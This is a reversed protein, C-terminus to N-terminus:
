SGAEVHAVPREACRTTLLQALPPIVDHWDAVIGIDAGDFVEAAPDHNVALITGSGRVGVMHNFRGSIGVAVYLKPSISHGTIGVQRSRPLWGRDTVRRTAALPAGGLARQLPELLALEDPAVGTGVGIVVPAQLLDLPDDIREQSITVVGSRAAAKVTRATDIETVDRPSRVPLAGRRVTVMQVPSRTDIPVVLQGGLAPKFARLRRDPTIELSIADGTLGWGTAASVWGALARGSRTSEFLVAWPAAQHLLGALTWPADELGGGSLSIIEDAGLGALGRPAPGRVVAVTSGGIAAALRAGESLLPAYATSDTDDVVVWVGPGSGGTGPVVEATTHGPQADFVGRDHLAAVAEEPSFPRRGERRQGVVQPQGVTTPSGALGVTDAPLGLDAASLRIITQDPVLLCEEPSAKSPDCLREATSLVAPLSGKVERWGDDTELTASFTRGSVALERVAPCFPLDLAGAVGPAVQGTDSDVSNLGALILDFPGLTRLAAALARTTAVTDAGAFASDCLHVGRDAGCAIMERLAAEASPPGMTFVVVEGDKGALEVAKANARRCYANVELGVGDRILRGDSSLRLEEAMPVQKVLVAVRLPM